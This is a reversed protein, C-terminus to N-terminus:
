MWHWFFYSRKLSFYLTYTFDGTPISIIDQSSDFGYPTFFFKDSIILKSYFLSSTNLITKPIYM